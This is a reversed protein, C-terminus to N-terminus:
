KKKYSTGSWLMNLSKTTLPVNKKMGAVMELHLDKATRPIDTKVINSKKANQYATVYKPSTDREAVKGSNVFAM